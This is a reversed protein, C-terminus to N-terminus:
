AQPVDSLIRYALEKRMEQLLSQEEQNKAVILKADFDYSRWSIVKRNTHEILKNTGDHSQYHYRVTLTLQYQATVGTQTVSLPRKDLTEEDLILSLPADATLQIDKSSLIDQLVKSMKSNHIRAQLYISSPLDASPANDSNTQAGRLQWGCASVFLLGVVFSWRSVFNYM